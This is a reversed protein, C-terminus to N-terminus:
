NFLGEFGQAPENQGSESSSPEVPQSTLIDPSSQQPFLTETEPNELQPSTKEVTVSKNDFNIEQLTFTTDGAVHTQGTEKWTFEEAPFPDRTAMSIKLEGELFLKSDTSLTIERNDNQLDIIVATPVRRVTTSGETEEVVLKNEGSKLQFGHEEFAPDDITGRVSEGRKSNYFQWIAEDTGKGQPAGLYAELQIRFLEREMAILELGFPQPPEPEEVPQFDLRKEIPNWYIKPPTFIDYLQLGEEDQAVPDPWTIDSLKVVPPDVPEYPAGSPQQNLLDNASQVAGTKMFYFGIGAGLALLALIFLIKDYIAKM